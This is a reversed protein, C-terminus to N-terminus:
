FVADTTIKLLCIHIFLLRSQYIPILCSAVTCNHTKKYITYMRSCTSKGKRVSHKNYVSFQIFLGLQEGNTWRKIFLGRTFHIVTAHLSNKLLITTELKRPVTKVYCM